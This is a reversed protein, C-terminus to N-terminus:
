AHSSRVRPPPPPPPPLVSCSNQYPPQASEIFVQGQELCLLHLNQLGPGSQVLCVTNFVSFVTCVNANERMEVFACSILSDSKNYSVESHSEVYSGGRTDFNRRVTRRYYVAWWLKGAWLINMIKTTAGRKSGKACLKCLAMCAVEFSTSPHHEPLGWTRMKECTRPLKGLCKVRLSGLSQHSECKKLWTSPTPM